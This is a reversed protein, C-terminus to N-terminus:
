RRGTRASTRDSKDVASPAGANVTTNNSVNSTSPANVAISGGSNGQSLKANGDNMKTTATAMQQSASTAIGSGSISARPIIDVKGNGSADSWISAEEFDDFRV